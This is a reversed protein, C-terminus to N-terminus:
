ISVQHSLPFTSQTERIVCLMPMSLCPVKAEPLCAITFANHMQTHITTGKNGGGGGGGGGGFSNLVESIADAPKKPEVCCVDTRHEALRSPSALLLKGGALLRLVFCITACTCM